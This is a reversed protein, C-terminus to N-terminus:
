YHVRVHLLHSNRARQDDSTLTAEESNGLVVVANDTVTFDARPQRCNTNTGARIKLARLKKLEPRYWLCHRIATAFTSVAATQFTPLAFLVYYQLASPDPRDSM